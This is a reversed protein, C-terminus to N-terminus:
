RIKYSYILLQTDLLGGLDGWSDEYRIPPREAARPWSSGFHGAQDSFSGTAEEEPRAKLPVLKPPPPSDVGSPKAESGKRHRYFCLAGVALLLVAAGVAGGIIPGMGAGGSGGSSGSSSSAGPAVTTSSRRTPALTPVCGGGESTTAPCDAVQTRTDCYQGACSQKIGCYTSECASQWVAGMGESLSVDDDVCWGLDQDFSTASVVFLWFNKVNDVRWCSLPQNFSSAGYFMGYMTTVGSTDWAGIDENFSSADKFLESMDTVGGTEWTSIHGYTAEAATADALWAAVATRINSDNMVYPTGDWCVDVQMVGCSTSECRTSKFARSLTVGDDVCWGLDQDFAYAYNFTDELTKIARLDWQDLPQNFTSAYTFMARMSTVAGTNWDKLPQNFSSARFFMDLMTTVGSTDWSGIEDNFTSAGSNCTAFWSGSACFLGLMDTVGGTNWTSIHGYTAEATTPDSLWAAVATRITSDTMVYGPQCFCWDQCDGGSM